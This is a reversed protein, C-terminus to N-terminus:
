IHTEKWLYHWPTNNPLLGFEKRTWTQFIRGNHITVLRDGLALTDALNVALIVVAIGKKLLKELLKCIHMREAVDAQMFPQVCFVVRPRQLLVRAYILDYKETRTLQDVTKQAMGEGLWPEYEAWIGQRANINLWIKKLRHDMMFCLNDMYSLDPFLMTEPARQQIVALQRRNRNDLRRGDLLVQGQQPKIEGTALRVLDELIHNELDQVVVCEGPAVSLDLGDIARVHLDKLELAPACQIDPQDRERQQRVERAFDEVDFSHIMEPEADKTSVVKAIQGNVMFAATPCINRIEEYHLSVYLFSTGKDAYHRLIEWLKSLEADSVVASADMLVILRYDAVVAKVIEVVVREFPTLEWAYADASIRVGTEKLFPELLRSLMGRNIVQKHFGHRMVFVNDAVTLDDALGNQSGIVGIRNFRGNSRLYQNVLKERYYVYGYHIPINQRLLRILPILGTGNVPILGMIEGAGISLSLHNLETVGQQILTVRDLRLVEEKM